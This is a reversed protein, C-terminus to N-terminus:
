ALVTCTVDVHCPDEIGIKCGDNSPSVCVFWAWCHQPDTFESCVPTAEAAPFLTVAAAFALAIALTTATRM